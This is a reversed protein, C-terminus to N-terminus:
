LDYISKREHVLSGVRESRSVRDQCDTTSRRATRGSSDYYTSDHTPGSQALAQSAVLTFALALLTRKMKNGSKTSASRTGRRFRMSGALRSTTQETLAKAVKTKTGTPVLTKLKMLWKDTEAQLAKNKKELADIRRAAESDPDLPVKVPKVIKAKLKANEHQLCAIEYRAAKLEKAQDPSPQAARQSAADAM